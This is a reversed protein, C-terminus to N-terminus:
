PGHHLYLVLANSDPERIALRMGKIGGAHRQLTVDMRYEGVKPPPMPVLTMRCLPCQGASGSRVDPHMPCWFADPADSERVIEVLLGSGTDFLASEATRKLPAVGLRAITGEFDAAVFAIHHYRGAPARAVRTASLTAPAAAIGKAALWAVIGAYAHALDRQLLDPPDTEDFRDYLVFEDGTRVGVGLGPLIVRTGGLGSAAVNMSAAPDGVRYHVHHFRVLHDPEPSSGGYGQSAPPQPSPFAVFWVFAASVLFRIM